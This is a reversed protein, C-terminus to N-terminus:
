KLSELRKYNVTKRSCQVPSTAFNNASAPRTHIALKIDGYLLSRSAQRANNDSPLKISTLSGNTWKTKLSSLQGMLKVVLCRHVKAPKRSCTRPITHLLPDLPDKYAQEHLFFLPYPEYLAQDFLKCLKIGPDFKFHKLNYIVNRAQKLM